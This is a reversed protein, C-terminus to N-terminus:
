VWASWYGVKEDDSDDAEAVYEQVNDRYTTEGVLFVTLSMTGDGNVRTVMAPSMGQKTWMCVVDGLTVGVIM